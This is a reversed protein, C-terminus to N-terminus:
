YSKGTIRTMLDVAWKPRPFFFWGVMLGGAFGLILGTIM